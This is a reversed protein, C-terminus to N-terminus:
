FSLSHHLCNCSQLHVSWRLCELEFRATCHSFLICSQGIYPGTIDQECYWHLYFLKKYSKLFKVKYLFTEHQQFKKRIGYYDM